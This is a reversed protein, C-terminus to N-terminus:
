ADLGAGIGGPLAAILFLMAVSGATGALRASRRFGGKDLIKRYARGALATLIGTASALAAKLRRLADVLLKLQAPFSLSIYSSTRGGPTIPSADTAATSASPSVSANIGIAHTPFNVASEGSTAILAHEDPMHLRHRLSDSALSSLGLVNLPGEEEEQAAPRAARATDAAVISMVTLPPLGNLSLTYLYVVIKRPLKLDLTVWPGNRVQQQEQQHPHMRSYRRQVFELYEDMVLQREDAKSPPMSSPLSPMHWPINPLTLTFPLSARRDIRVRRPATPAAAAPHDEDGDRYRLAVAMSSRVDRAFGGVRARRASSAAGGRTAVPPHGGSLAACSTALLVLARGMAVPSTAAPALKRKANKNPHPTTAKM